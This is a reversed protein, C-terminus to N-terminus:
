AADLVNARALDVAARIDKVGSSIASLQLFEAQLAEAFIRALTTKGSGPPGWLVMSYLHGGQLAARLPKGGALLHQQGCVEELRRPRM